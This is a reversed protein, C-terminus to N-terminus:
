PQDEPQPHLDEVAAVLRVSDLILMLETDQPSVASVLQPLDGQLMTPMRHLASKPLRRVGEVQDVALVVSAHDGHGSQSKVTIFRNAKFAASGKVTATAESADGLLLRLDLVPLPEGRVVAMGLVHRPAEPIPTLLLPRMTEGVRDAPLACIRKGIQCVLL